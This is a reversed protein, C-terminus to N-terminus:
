RCCDGMTDSATIGATFAAEGRAGVDGDNAMARGNASPAAALTASNLAPASPQISCESVEGTRVEAGTPVRTADGLMGTLSTADVVARGAADPVKSETVGAGNTLPSGLAPARSVAM